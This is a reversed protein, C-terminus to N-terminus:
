NVKMMADPHIKHVADGPTRGAERDLYYSEVFIAYGSMCKVWVDGEGDLTLEIGAGIYLRTKESAETRHVNTLAGLCFRKGENATSFYGDVVVSRFSSPVKFTEGVQSDLEFYSISCWYEPMPQRSIPGMSTQSQSRPAGPAATPRPSPQPQQQQQQQQQQVASPQPQQQANNEVKPKLRELEQQHQRARGGNVDAQQQQQQQQQQQPWRQEGKGNSASTYSLTSPQKGYWSRDQGNTEAAAKGNSGPPAAPTAYRQQQQQQQQQQRGNNWAAAPNQGRAWNATQQQHQQAAAAAAAAALNGLNLGSLDLGPGIVRNYHYPNVCVLDKDKHDFGYQCFDVQKLENKHLDPWRWIKAYIVHPFGKRSAVQLRGDLTKPITVCTTPQAGNTTIATILADLEDRKEKLKKVLSTIASRSFSESEGGQRHHMLSNVISACADQFICM